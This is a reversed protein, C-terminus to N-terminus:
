SLTENILDEENNLKGSRNRGVIVEERNTNDSIHKVDRPDAIFFWVAQGVRTATRALVHRM